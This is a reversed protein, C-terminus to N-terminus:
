EAGLRPNLIEAQITTKVEVTTIKTPESECRVEIVWTNTGHEESCAIACERVAQYYPVNGYDIWDLSGELRAQRNLDSM